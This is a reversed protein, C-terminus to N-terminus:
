KQKRREWQLLINVFVLQKKRFLFKMVM